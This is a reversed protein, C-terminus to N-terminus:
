LLQSHMGDHPARQAESFFREVLHAQDPSLPPLSSHPFFGVQTVETGPHFAGGRVTGSYVINVYPHDSSVYVTFIADLDVSFGCEEVLERRLAADPQEGHELFGTPLGWPHEGRYTHRLVLIEDDQNRIVGVVGVMFHPLLFVRLLPATAIRSGIYRMPAPWPLAWVARLLRRM